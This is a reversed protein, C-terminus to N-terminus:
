LTIVAFWNCKDMLTGGYILPPVAIGQLSRLAEYVSSEYEVTSRAEDVSLGGMRGGTVLTKIMFALGDPRRLRKVSSTSSERVSEYAKDWPVPLLDAM